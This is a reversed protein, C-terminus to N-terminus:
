GAGALCGGDPSWALAQVWGTYGELVLPAADPRAPDWLRVVGDNGASALCGGDPSWALAQVDRYALTAHQAGSM